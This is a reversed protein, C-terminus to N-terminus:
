PLEPRGAREWAALWFVAIDYAAQNMSTVLVPGAETWISAYFRPDTRAFREQARTMASLLPAIRAYSAVITEFAYGLVDDPSRAQRSVFLADNWNADILTDEFLAHAGTNGTQQGNYNETTHLPMNADAAYHGLDAATAWMAPDGARMQASLKETTQLIAWPLLGNARVPAEGYRAVLTALDRPVDAFPYTGYLDIDIFHRVAEDADTSKREDAAVALTALQDAHRAMATRLPDPLNAIAYRNLLPHARPGWPWASLAPGGLLALALVVTWVTLLIQVRPRSRFSRPM